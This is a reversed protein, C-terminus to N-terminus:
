FGGAEPLAFRTPSLVQVELSDTFGPSWVLGFSDGADLRPGPPFRAILWFGGAHLVALLATIGM